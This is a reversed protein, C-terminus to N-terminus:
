REPYTATQKGKGGFLTNPNISVPQPPIPIGRHESTAIRTPATDTQRASPRRNTARPRRTPPPRPPRLPQPHLTSSKLPQSTSSTRPDLLGSHIAMQPNSAASWSLRGPRRQVLTGRAGALSFPWSCSITVSCLSSSSVMIGAARVCIVREGPLSPVLLSVFFSLLFRQCGAEYLSRVWIRKEGTAHYRSDVFAARAVSVHTRPGFAAGPRWGGPITCIVYM